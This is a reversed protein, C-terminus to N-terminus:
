RQATQSIDFTISPKPADEDDSASAASARNGGYARTVGYKTAIHLPEGEASTTTHDGASTSSSSGTGLRFRKSHKKKKRIRKRKIRARQKPKAPRGVSSPGEATFSLASSSSSPALEVSDNRSSPFQAKFIHYQSETDDDLHLVCEKEVSRGDTPFEAREM